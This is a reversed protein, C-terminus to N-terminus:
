DDCTWEPDVCACRTRDSNPVDIGNHGGNRSRMERNFHDAIRSADDADWRRLTIQLCWRANSDCFVRSVLSRLRPPMGAVIEGLLRYEYDKNYRSEIVVGDVHLKRLSTTAAKEGKDRRRGEVAAIVEPEFVPITVTRKAM